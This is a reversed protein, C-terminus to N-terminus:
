EYDPPLGGLANMVMDKDPIHDILAALADGISKLQNLYDTMSSSGKTCFDSGTFGLNSSFYHTRSYSDSRQWQTFAPNLTADDMLSPISVDIYHLPVLSSFSPDSLDSKDHYWSPKLRKDDNPQEEAWSRNHSSRSSGLCAPTELYISVNKKYLKHSACLGSNGRVDLRKGLRNIFEEPLCLEGSLMNQSLNLQGLNPLAGLNPPVTGNLSNNDLSLATLLKLSPFFTPIPGIFGSGSLSLVTLKRLAGLFLPIGTSIPNDEVLLYELDELGSLTEPIPGELSNHSLDLLVLRKLKGIDPPIRGVLRNSSLDIKQLLQLQGLSNPLQGQLGNWSLDLITLGKLGEIEEPIEGSLHNYSLDLQELSGLGGLEKPIEGQLSNQSLSLVTLSSIEALTPPIEGSLAPNNKLVLQELSSFTGFLYPSLTVPSTLFCNFISLTKLYPLKLLSKSLKASIKCPPTTFDPGVHIKTVHFIPPDQDIECKIGPWPTDTCPYPHMQTWNPDELLDGVVEFLGLLEEAEMGFAGDETINYQTASLDAALILFGVLLLSLSAM